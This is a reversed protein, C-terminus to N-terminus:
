VLSMRVQMADETGPIFADFAAWFQARIHDRELLLEHESGPIVITRALKVRQAFREAVPTSVIRDEGAALILVPIRIKEGFRRDSTVKISKLASHLWAVTPATVLLKPEDDTFANFTDFRSPDRTLPNNEFPMKASLRGLALGGLGCFRLLPTLVSVIQRSTTGMKIDLMPSSLIMREFPNPGEVAYRLMIHGGMSHALCFFPARMETLMIDKVFARVDGLYDNFSRVHGKKSNRKMRSSLGQGRWDICVADFGRDQLEEIVEYYKEIFETRGSFIVVTGKCDAKAPFKAYRLSIKRSRELM